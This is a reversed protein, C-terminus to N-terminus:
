PQHVFLQLFFESGTEPKTYHFTPDDLVMISCIMYGVIHGEGTIKFTQLTEMRHLGTLSAEVRALLQVTGQALYGQM